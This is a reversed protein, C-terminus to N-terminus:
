VTWVSYVALRQHKSQDEFTALLKQQVGARSGTLYWPNYNGHLAGM